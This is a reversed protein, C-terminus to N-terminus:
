EINDTHQQAPPASQATSKKVLAAIVEEKSFCISPHSEPKLAQIEQRLGKHRHEEIIFLVLNIIASFAATYWFPAFSVEDGYSHALYLFFGIMVPILITILQIVEFPKNRFKAWPEEHGCQECSGTLQLDDYSHESAMRKMASLMVQHDYQSEARVSEKQDSKSEGFEGRYQGTTSYSQKLV